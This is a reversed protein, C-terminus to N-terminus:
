KKRKYNYIVEDITFWCFYYIGISFLIDGIMRMWKLTQITPSYLLDSERAFSYGETISTYAQIIGIPLM